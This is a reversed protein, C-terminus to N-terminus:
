APWQGNCSVNYYVAQLPKENIACNGSETAEWSAESKPGPLIDHATQHEMM